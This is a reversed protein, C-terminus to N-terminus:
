NEALRKAMVTIGIARADSRGHALLWAREWGPSAQKRRQAQRNQSDAQYGPGIGCVHEPGVFM